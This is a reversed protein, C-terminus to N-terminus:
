SGNGESTGVGSEPVGEPFKPEPHPPCTHAATYAAVTTPIVNEIGKEAIQADIYDFESQVVPRLCGCPLPLAQM